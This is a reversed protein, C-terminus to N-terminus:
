NYAPTKLNQEMQKVIGDVYELHAREATKSSNSADFSLDKSVIATRKNVKSVEREQYYQKMYAGLLDITYQGIPPVFVKNSSDFTIPEIEVSYRAVAKALWVLELEEPIVEKDRFTSEFSDIVAQATTAIEVEAM